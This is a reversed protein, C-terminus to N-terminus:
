DGLFPEGILKTLSLFASEWVSVGGQDLLACNMGLVMVVSSGRPPPPLSGGAAGPLIVCEAKLWRAPSCPGTATPSGQSALCPPVGLMNAPESLISYVCMM